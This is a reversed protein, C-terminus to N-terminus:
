IKTGFSLDGADGLGPIIYAKENLKEDLSGLWLSTHIDIHKELNDIGHQTGIVSFLHIKAPKGASSVMSEYAKILSNGTALMPDVLLLEKGSLKDSALYDLNIEPSETESSRYAGIFGSDIQDFIELFGDYFPLGARLVTVLYLDNTIVNTESYGLPTKVSKTKYNLTKSFEYAMLAGLRHMNKRFRLRDSQISLDRMESIFHNAISNTEDIIHLDM